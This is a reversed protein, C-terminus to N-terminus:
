PSAMTTDPTESVTAGPSASATSPRLPTPLVVSTLVMTPTVRRNAPVIAMSPRSTVAAGGSARARAPMPQTGCSRLTKRDSVTSSFRVATARGPRQVDLTDVAHERPQALAARM